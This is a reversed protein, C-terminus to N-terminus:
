PVVDVLAQALESETFPKDLKLVRTDVGGPIEADKVNSSFFQASQDGTM